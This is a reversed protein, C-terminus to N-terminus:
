SNRTYIINLSHDIVTWLPKAKPQTLSKPLTAPPTALISLMEREWFKLGVLDRLAILSHLLTVYEPGLELDQKLGMKSFVQLSALVPNAHLM